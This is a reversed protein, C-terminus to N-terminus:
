ISKIKGLGSIMSYNKDRVDDYFALVQQSESAGNRIKSSEAINM